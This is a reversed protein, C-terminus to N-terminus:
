KILRQDKEIILSALLRLRVVYINWYNYKELANSKLPHCTDNYFHVFPKEYSGNFSLKELIRWNLNEYKNWEFLNIYYNQPYQNTARIKGLPLYDRNFIAWADKEVNYMMGYPFNVNFSKM